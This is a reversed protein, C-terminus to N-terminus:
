KKEEPQKRDLVDLAGIEKLAAQFKAIDKVGRPPLGLENRDVFDFDTTQVERAKTITGETSITRIMEIFAKPPTLGREVAINTLAQITEVPSTEMPCRTH